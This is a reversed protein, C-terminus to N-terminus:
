SGPGESGRGPHQPHTSSDDDPILGTGGCRSCRDSGEALSSGYGNCNPCWTMGAPIEGLASV